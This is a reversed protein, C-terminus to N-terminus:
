LSNNIRFCYFSALRTSRQLLLYWFRKELLKNLTIQNTGATHVDLYNLSYPGNSHHAPLYTWIVPSSSGCYITVSANETTYVMDPVVMKNYINITQWDEGTSSVIFYIQLVLILTMNFKFKHLLKLKLLKCKARRELDCLFVERHASSASEPAGIKNISFGAYGLPVGLLLSYSLHNVIVLHPIYFFTFTSSM